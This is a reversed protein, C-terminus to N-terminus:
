REPRIEQRVTPECSDVLEHAIKLLITHFADTKRAADAPTDEPLGFEKPDVLPDFPRLTYVWRFAEEDGRRFTLWQSDPGDGGPSMMARALQTPLAAVLRKLIGDFEMKSIPKRYSLISTTSASVPVRIEHTIEGQTIQLLKGLTPSFCGPCMLWQINDIHETELACAPSALGLLFSLIFKTAKM